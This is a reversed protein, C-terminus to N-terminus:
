TIREGFLLADPFSCDGTKLVDLRTASKVFFCDSAAAAVAAVAAAADEDAAKSDSVIFTNDDFFDGTEAVLFCDGAELASELLGCVSGLFTARGL